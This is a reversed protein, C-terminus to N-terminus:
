PKAVPQDDLFVWGKIPKNLLLFAVFPDHLDFIICLFTVTMKHTAQEQRFITTMVLGALGPQHGFLFMVHLPQICSKKLAVTFFPFLDDSFLLISWSFNHSCPSFFPYQKIKVTKINLKVESESEARSDPANPCILLILINLLIAKFWFM